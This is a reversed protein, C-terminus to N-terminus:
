EYVNWLRKWEEEENRERKGDIAMVVGDGGDMEGRGRRERRSEKGQM